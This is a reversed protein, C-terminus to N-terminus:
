INMSLVIQLYKMSCPKFSKMLIQHCPQMIKFGCKEFCHKITDPTVEEWVSKVWGIVKLIDVAKFIDPAKMNEDVRSIFYKILLKCYKLKFARIIGADLSQLRSTTNKPLFVLKINTLSKQIPEQHGTANDLFLLVNRNPLKLVKLMIEGDMWAKKNSFYHVGLPRSLDNNKM